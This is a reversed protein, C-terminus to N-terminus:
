HPSNEMGYHWNVDLIRNYRDIESEMTVPTSPLKKNLSGQLARLMVRRVEWSEGPMKAIVRLAVHFQIRRYQAYELLHKAHDELRNGTQNDYTSRPGLNFQAVYAGGEKLPIEVVAKVFPRGYRDKGPPYRVDLVPERLLHNATDIVHWTLENGNYAGKYLYNFAAAIKDQNKIPDELWSDLLKLTHSLHALHANPEDHGIEIQYTKLPTPLKATGKRQSYLLPIKGSPFVHELEHALPISRPNLELLDEWGLKVRNNKLDFGTGIGDFPHGFPIVFAFGITPRKGFEEKNLGSRRIELDVISRIKAAFSRRPSGHAKAPWFEVFIHDKTLHPVVTFGQAMLHQIAREGLELSVELTQHKKAYAIAEGFKERYKSKEHPEVYAAEIARIVGPNASTRKVVSRENYFTFTIADPTPDSSTRPFLPYKPLSPPAASLRIREPAKQWNGAKSLAAECDLLDAYCGACWLFVYFVTVLATVPTDFAYASHKLKVGKFASVLISLEIQTGFIVLSNLKGIM